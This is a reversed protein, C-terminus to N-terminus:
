RLRMRECEVTEQWGATHHIGSRPRRGKSSPHVALSKKKVAHPTKMGRPSRATVRAACGAAPPVRRRTRGLLCLSAHPVESNGERPLSARDPGANGSAPRAAQHGCAEAGYSKEGAPRIEGGGERKGHLQVFRKALGPFRGTPNTGGSQPHPTNLGGPPHSRGDRRLSRPGPARNSAPTDTVRRRASVSPVGARSASGPRLRLLRPACRDRRHRSLLRPPTACGGPLVFVTVCHCFFPGAVRPLPLVSVTV